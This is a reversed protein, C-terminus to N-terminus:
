GWIATILRRYEKAADTDRLETLNALITEYYWRHELPDKQNFRDWLKEGVLRYDREMTRLNSLKDALVVTKVGTDGCAALGDLAAQKRARWSAEASIHTMKDESVAGVLEAVRANFKEAITEKTVGCDEITDHLVAAALVDPDDTVASAIGMAEVPHTIYPTKSGKRTQGSHAEAAFVVAEDIINM